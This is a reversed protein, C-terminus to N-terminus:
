TSPKPSHTQKRGTYYHRVQAARNAEEKSLPRRTTDTLTRIGGYSMSAKLPKSPLTVFEGTKGASDLDYSHAATPLESLLKLRGRSELLEEAEDNSDESRFVLSTHHAETVGNMKFSRHM